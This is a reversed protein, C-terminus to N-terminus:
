ETDADWPLADLFRRVEPDRRFVVPHLHRGHEALAAALNPRSEANFRWVYRLFELDMREPCGAGMDERVRGHHVLKRWVVRRLCRLAPYDFWFVTDTRPLRLHLSGGYNGDIIWSDGAVLEAVRARWQAKPTGAWGPQWYEKDLHILPLGTKHALARSFTSKGAGCIGIVLVRQM